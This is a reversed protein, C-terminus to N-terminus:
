LSWSSRHSDGVGAFDIGGELLDGRKDSCAVFHQARRFVDGDDEGDNLNQGNDEQTQYEECQDRQQIGYVRIEFYTAGLECGWM